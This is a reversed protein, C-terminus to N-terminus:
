IEDEFYDDEFEDGESDLTFDYFEDYADQSEIVVLAEDLNEEPVMVAYAKEGNGSPDEQEKITTIIDNNKLLSEYEHAEELDRAFTAVVLEKVKTQQKDTKKSKRAM